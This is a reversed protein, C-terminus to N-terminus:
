RSRDGSAPCMGPPTLAYERSKFHTRHGTLKLGDPISFYSPDVLRASHSLTYRSAVSAVPSSEYTM